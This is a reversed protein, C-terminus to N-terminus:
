ADHGGSLRARVRGVVSAGAPKLGFGLFLVRGHLCCLLSSGICGTDFPHSAGRVPECGDAGGMDALDAPPGLIGIGM